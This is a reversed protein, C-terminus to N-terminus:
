ADPQNEEASRQIVGPIALRGDGTRALAFFRGGDLTRATSVGARDIFLFQGGYVGVVERQSGGMRLFDLRMQELRAACFELSAVDRAVVNFRPAEGEAGPNGLHYCVGTESPAEPGSSSCAALGVLATSAALMAALASGPRMM